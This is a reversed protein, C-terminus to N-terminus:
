TELRDVNFTCIKQHTHDRFILVDEVTDDILIFEGPGQTLRIYDHFAKEKQWISIFESLDFVTGKSDFVARKIEECTPVTDIRRGLAQEIMDRMGANFQDRDAQNWVAFSFINITKIDRNDLWAKIKEVNILVPDHWISIVTQELDLWVTTAV